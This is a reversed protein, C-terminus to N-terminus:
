TGDVLFYRGNEETIDLKKLRKYSVAEEAEEEFVDKVSAPVRKTKSIFKQHNPAPAQGRPKMASTKNNKGM